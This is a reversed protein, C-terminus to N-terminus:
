QKKAVGTIVTAAIPDQPTYNYKMRMFQIEKGKDVVVFEFFADVQKNVEGRENVLSIEFTGTCDEKLTFKGKYLRPSPLIIFGNFNESM